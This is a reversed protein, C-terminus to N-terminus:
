APRCEVAFRGSPLRGYSRVELGAERALDRFESLTRNKGGEDLLGRAGENLAFSGPSPEEFVGRSVLHRLVGHLSDPDAGSAAALSVIDTDGQEIRRAIQLTAAVRVCWPTSLDTLAWLDM